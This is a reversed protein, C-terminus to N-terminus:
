GNARAFGNIIRLSIDSLFWSGHRVGQEGGGAGEVGQGKDPTRLGTVDTMQRRQGVAENLIVPRVVAVRQELM